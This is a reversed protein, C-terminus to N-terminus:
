RYILLRQNVQGVRNASQITAIAEATLVKNESVLLLGHSSYIGTVLAMGPKLEPLTIERVQKRPASSNTAKLFLRVAEPDFDTGAGAIICDLATSSFQRLEVFAV